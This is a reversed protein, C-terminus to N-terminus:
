AYAFGCDFLCSAKETEVGIVTGGIEKLGSYFKMKTM